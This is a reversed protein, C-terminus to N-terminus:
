SNGAMWLPGLHRSLLASYFGSRTCFPHNHAFYVFFFFFFLQSSIKNCKGCLKVMFQLLQISMELVANRKKPIFHCKFTFFRNRHSEFILCEIEQNKPNFSLVQTYYRARCTKTIIIAFPFNM